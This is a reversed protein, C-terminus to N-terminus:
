ALFVPSHVEETEAVSVVPNHTGFGNGKENVPFFEV